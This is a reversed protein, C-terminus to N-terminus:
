LFGRFRGPGSLYRLERRFGDKGLKQTREYVPTEPLERATSALTGAVWYRDLRGDQNEDFVCVPRSPNAALLETYATQKSCYADGEGTVDAPLLVADAPLHVRSADTGELQVTPTCGAALISAVAVWRARVWMMM